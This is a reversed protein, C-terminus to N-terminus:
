PSLSAAGLLGVVIGLGGQVIGASIKGAVIDDSLRPMVIRSAVHALLQVALAVLGWVLAEIPDPTVSFVLNIQLAFGIIAGFFGLAAAANGARILELEKHPTALAYVLGFALTVGVAVVFHQAFLGLAFWVASDM